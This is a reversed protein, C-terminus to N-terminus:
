GLMSEPDAAAELYQSILSALKEVIETDPNEAHEIYTALRTQVKALYAPNLKIAACKTALYGAALKVQEPKIPTNATIVAIFDEKFAAWREQSIGNRASERVVTALQEISLKEVPYTEPNFDSETVLNRAAAYIDDNLISLVYTLAAGGKNVIDVLGNLTLQPIATKPLEPPNPNKATARSRFSVVEESYRDGFLAAIDAARSPVKVEAAVETVQNQDQDSM